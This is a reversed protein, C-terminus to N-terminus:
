AVDTVNPPMWSVFATDENLFLSASNQYRAFGLPVPLMTTVMDPEVDATTPAYAKVPAFWVLGIAPM